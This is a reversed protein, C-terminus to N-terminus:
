IHSNIITLINEEKKQNSMRPLYMLEIQICFGSLNKETKDTSILADKNELHHSNLLEASSVTM